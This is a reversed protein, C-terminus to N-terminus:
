YALGRERLLARYESNSMSNPQGPRATKSQANGSIPAAPRHVPAGNSIPVSRQELAFEPNEEAYSKFFDSIVKKNVGDLNDEYEERLFDRLDDAAHRYFKPKIYETAISKVGEDYREAMREQELEAARAEAEMRANKDAAAEERIREIEALNKKRQEEEETRYKDLSKKMELIEARNDTGFLERLTKKAERQLRRTFSAMPMQVMGNAQSTSDEDEDSDEEASPQSSLSGLRKEAPSVSSPSGKTQQIAPPIAQSAALTEGSTQNQGTLEKNEESM